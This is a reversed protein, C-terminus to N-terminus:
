SNAALKLQYSRAARQNNKRIAAEHKEMTAISDELMRQTMGAPTKMHGEAMQRLQHTSFKLRSTKVASHQGIGHQSGMPFIFTRYVTGSKRSFPGPRAPLAQRRTGGCAGFASVPSDRELGLVLRLLVAKPLRTMEEWDLKPRPHAM